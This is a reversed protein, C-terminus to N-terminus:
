TEEHIKAIEYYHYQITVVFNIIHFINWMKRASGNQTYQGFTCLLNEIYILNRHGHMKTASSHM